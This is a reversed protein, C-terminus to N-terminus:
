QHAIVGLILALVSRLITLNESFVMAQVMRLVFFPKEACRLNVVLLVFFLDLFVDSFPLLLIGFLEPFILAFVSAFRPCIKVSMPLFPPRLAILFRVPFPITFIRSFPSGKVFVLHFKVLM